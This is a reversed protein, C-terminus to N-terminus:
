AAQDDASPALAKDVKDGSAPPKGKAESKCRCRNIWATLAKLKLMAIKSNAIDTIRLLTLGQYAGGKKGVNLARRMVNWARRKPLNFGLANEGKITVQQHQAEEGVWRVLTAALSEANMDADDGDEKELCTFHMVIHSKTHQKQLHNFFKVIPRYGHGKDDDTWDSADSTRIIGAAIEALRKSLVLKSNDWRGMQWHVGPVKAGIDIGNFAAGEASFVELAADMGLKAGALLSEAYWDFLDRGYQKRVHVEDKFFANCDVPPEIKDLEGWAKRAGEREGYKKLVWHEWSERALESYCQLAGRSPFGAGVDHSNYSPFRLEGAPGLSITIETLIDKQTAFETQFATYLAKYDDVAFHAAWCSVFEDSAHGQESVYKVADVKGSSTKSALKPWIYAPLPVYADDGINGGCQHTSINAVAKLEAERISQFMKQYYSWEYVREQKEVLGWWVDFFIAHVGATKMLKLQEAFRQWQERSKEGDPDAPDGIVLPAMVNVHITM